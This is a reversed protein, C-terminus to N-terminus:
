RPRGNIVAVTSPPTHLGDRVVIPLRGVPYRIPTPGPSRQETNVAAAAVVGDPLRLESQAVLSRDDREVERAVALRRVDVGIWPVFGERRVGVVDECDGLSGVGPDEGAVGHASGDEQM